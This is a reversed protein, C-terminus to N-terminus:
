VKGKLMRKALKLLEEHIKLAVRTLYVEKTENIRVAEWEAEESAMKIDIDRPPIPEVKKIQKM